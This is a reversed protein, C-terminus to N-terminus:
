GDKAPWNFIKRAAGGLIWAKEERSLDPSDRLAYLLDSWTHGPLVTKDSAWLLRDAGFAEIARRLLPQLGRYPYERVAFREQAHSWKMAVNPFEALTLVVERFYGVSLAYTLESDSRNGPLEPFGMGCHDIVFTLGPYKEVYPRLMEVHGPVFCCVPLGLDQAIAFLADYGGHSFLTAEEATWVSLIRFARAHPSAAVFRMVTELQPDRRDVRVLYSFREPNEIAAKEANPACPRWVNNDLLYGPEFHTPGTSASMGWLEDLLVSSIGLSDMAELTSSAGESGLHLQADVIDM